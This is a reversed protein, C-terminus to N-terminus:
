PANLSALVQKRQEEEAKAQRAFAKAGRGMLKKMKRMEENARIHAALAAQPHTVRKKSARYPGVTKAKLGIGLRDLKLITPLPTLLARGAPSPPSPPSEIIAEEDDSGTLDVVEITRLETIEGEDDYNLEVEELIIDPVQAQAAALRDARRVVHLGLTEGESWGGKELMRYGKNTSTLAIYVPPKFPQDGTTPPPERALLDALTSTQPPPRRIHPAFWTLNKFRQPGSYEVTQQPAEMVTRSTSAIPETPPPPTIPATSRDKVVSRYWEAVSSQQPHGAPNPPPSVKSQPMAMINNIQDYSLVAPVFSAAPARRRQAGFASETQWPDSEEEVDLGGQDHERANHGLGERREAPDYHSYIHHAVTAM